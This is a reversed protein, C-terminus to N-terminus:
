EWNGNTTVDTRSGFRLPKRNRGQHSEKRRSDVPATDRVEIVDVKVGSKEIKAVFIEFEANDTEPIYKLHSFNYDVFMPDSFLSDVVPLTGLTDIKVYISDAGYSLPIIFETRETIYFLGHDIFTALTDWNDTYKGNVAQYGIQAKRILMLKDQIKKEVQAIREKEDIDSKISFILYGGLFLSIILLVISITKIKNM